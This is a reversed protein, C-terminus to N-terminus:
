RSLGRYNICASCLCHADSSGCWYSASCCYYDSDKNCIAVEGNPAIYYGGCRADERYPNAVCQNEIWSYDIDCECTFSGQTNTCLIGTSCNHLNAECEDVDLILVINNHEEKNFSFQCQIISNRILFSLFNQFQIKEYGQLPRITKYSYHAM